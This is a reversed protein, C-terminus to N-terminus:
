HITFYFFLFYHIKRLLLNNCINLPYFTERERKKIFQPNNHVNKTKARVQKAFFCMLLGM